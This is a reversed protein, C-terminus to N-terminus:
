INPNENDFTEKRCNRETGQNQVKMSKLHYGYLPIKNPDRLLYKWGIQLPAIIVESTQLYVLFAFQSLEVFLLSLIIMFM